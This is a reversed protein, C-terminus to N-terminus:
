TSKRGASSPVNAIGTATSVAPYPLELQSVAEKRENLKLLLQQAKEYTPAIELSRLTERKAEAKKGAGLLARALNYHAEAPDPPNLGLLVQYAAIAAQWNQAELAAEGLFSHTRTDYPDIYASLELVRAANAWDKRKRYIEAARNLPSIATEDFRAWGIFQALAEEERGAGAYMEGLAQYPNGPEVFEPFLSEAKKLYTEAASNSNEQRLLIGLRLNAFFDNPDKKLLSTLVARDPPGGATAQGTFQEFNLRSAIPKLRADLFAAYQADLITTDWGLTQRFVEEAPKNEAFLALAQRIKEFGFREV